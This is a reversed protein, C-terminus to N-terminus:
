ASAGLGDFTTAARYYHRPEGAPYDRRNGFRLEIGTLDAPDFLRMNVGMRDPMGDKIPAWSTTAGCTPCFQGTITPEAVDDREYSAISGAFVVTSAPYYGWMAGLKVCFACNCQNLYEPRGPVEITVRGCLCAGKM